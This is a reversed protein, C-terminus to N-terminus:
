DRLRLDVETEPGFIQKALQEFAAHQETAKKHHFGYQFVVRLISGDLSPQADLFLARTGRPLRELVTTWRDSVSEHAAPSAKAAPRNTLDAPSVLDGTQQSVPQEKLQMDVDTEPGFTGKALIEVLARQESAKKLHFGYRFLLHLTSGDLSPEADLFAARPARPMGELITQWRSRVSEPENPAAPSARSPRSDALDIAAAFDGTRQWDRRDIKVPCGAAALREALDHRREVSNDLRVIHLGSLDSLPRLRGLSVLVTRDRGLGLAMGAEFLVNPRAQPTPGVDEVPDGSRIFQPRLRAEDDATMLVVVAHALKMGTEVVELVGPNTRATARVAESWELPDLDVARLFEFMADRALHNRGHVVFVRRTDSVKPDDAEVPIRLPQQPVNVRSQAAAEVQPKPEAEAGELKRLLPEFQQRILERRASPIGRQRM